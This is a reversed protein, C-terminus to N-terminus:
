EEDEEDQQDEMISMLATTLQLAQSNTPPDETSDPKNCQEPTHLTWAAHKVCWHYIKEGVKKKVPEGAKPPVTKWAYKDVVKKKDLKKKKDEKDKKVPPPAKLEAIQARLAVIEKDSATPAQWMDEEVLSKYKNGALEMLKNPALDRVGDNYDDKQIEVYRHFVADAVSLYARFLNVMLNEDEVKAGREQIQLVIIKVNENFKEVDNAVKEMLNDLLNIRQFLLTLTSRTTTTARDLILKLLLPGNAISQDTVKVQSFNALLKTRGDSSLSEALCTYCALGNQAM